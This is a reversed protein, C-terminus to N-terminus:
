YTLVNDAAMLAENVESQSAIRAGKRLDQKTIGAYAACHPCLVVEAGKGVLADYMEALTQNETGFRLNNPQRKDFVRVAELNAFITVEAGQDLLSRALTMAMFLGHLDDLGDNLQIVINQGEGAEGKAQTKAPEAHAVGRPDGENCNLVSVGAISMAVAAAFLAVSRTHM